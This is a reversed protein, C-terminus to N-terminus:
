SNKPSDIEGMLVYHLLSVTTISPDLKLLARVAKSRMKNGNILPYSVLPTNEDNKIAAYYGDEKQDFDTLNISSQQKNKVGRYESLIREVSWGHSSIITIGQWSKMDKPLDNFVPEIKVDYKTGYFTSNTDSSDHTYLGGAKFSFLQKNLKGFMEPSFDHIYKWRKDTESFVAGKYSTYDRFTAPLSSHSNYVILEDHAPNFECIAVPNEASGYKSIMLDSLGDFWTSMKYEQSIATLGDRGYRVWTGNIADWYYVRGRHLTVSEPNLTGHSGLLTNYSGLIRDSLTVQTRGSLDELTTRNVYISFAEREGIALLITGVSEVQANATALLYRIRGYESPFIKQDQDKFRNLQNVFSEEVIQGGFRTQTPKFNAVPLDTYAPASRGICKEWFDYTKESDQNM